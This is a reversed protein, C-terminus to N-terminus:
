KSRRELSEISGNLWGLMVYLERAQERTCKLRNRNSPRTINVLISKAKRASAAATKHRAELTAIRRTQEAIIESDKM